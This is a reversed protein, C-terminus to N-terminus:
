FINASYAQSTLHEGAEWAFAFRSSAKLIFSM